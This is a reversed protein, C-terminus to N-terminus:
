RYMMGWRRFGRQLQERQEKTLLADMRKDAELRSEFMERHLDNFKTYAKNIAAADRKEANYLKSLQDQQEWVKQM